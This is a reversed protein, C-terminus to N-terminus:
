PLLSLVRTVLPIIMKWRVILLTWYAVIMTTWKKTKEQITIAQSLVVPANRRDKQLEKPLLSRLNKATIQLKHLADEVKRLMAERKVRLEAAHDVLIEQKRHHPAEGEDDDEEEELLTLPVTRHRTPRESSELEEHPFVSLLKEPERLKRWVFEEEEEEEQRLRNPYEMSLASSSVAMMM